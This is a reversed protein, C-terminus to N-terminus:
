LRPPGPVSAVGDRFILEIPPCPASAVGHTCRFEYVHHVLSVPLVTVSLQHLQHVLPAPLVMVSRALDVAAIEGGESQGCRWSEDSASLCASFQVVSEVCEFHHVLTAPLMM